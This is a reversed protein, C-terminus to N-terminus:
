RGHGHVDTLRFRRGQYRHSLQEHDIGLLHLLTAQFDHVHVCGPTFSHKDPFVPNGAADALNHKQVDSRGYVGPKFGGGAMWVTFCRPHHDRGYNTASLAGQSYSTRGFEGGWVVLTDDLMGRQKLDRLLAASPQDTEAAQGRIAGPLLGPHGLGPPLAPHFARRARGAPSCATPPSPAPPATTPATCTSSPPPSAPSIPWRRCAPRCTSPWRTGPSAPSSRPM